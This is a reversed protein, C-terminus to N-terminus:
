ARAVLDLIHRELLLLPLATKDLQGPTPHFASAHLYEPEWPDASLLDWHAIAHATDGLDVISFHGHWPDQYLGRSAGLDRVLVIAREGEVLAVNGWHGPAGTFRVPGSERGSPAGFRSSYIREPVAVVAQASSSSVRVLMADHSELKEQLFMM